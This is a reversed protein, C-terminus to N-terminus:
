VSIALLKKMDVFWMESVSLNLIEFQGLGAISSFFFFFVPGSSRHQGQQGHVKGAPLTQFFSINPERSSGDRAKYRFLYFCDNGITGPGTSMDSGVIVLLVWQISSLKASSFYGSPVAREVLACVFNERTKVRTLVTPVRNEPSPGQGM